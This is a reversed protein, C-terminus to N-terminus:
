RSFPSSLRSPSRQWVVLLATREGAPRTGARARLALLDALSLGAKDLSKEFCHRLGSGVERLVLPHRPLQKVSLKKRRSLAHGPPVVLVMEDFARDQHQPDVRARLRHLNDRLDAARAM